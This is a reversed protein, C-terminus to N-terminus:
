SGPFRLFFVKVPFQCPFPIVHKITSKTGDESNAIDQSKHCQKQLLSPPYHLLAMFPTRCSGSCTPKEWEGGRFSRSSSLTSPLLDWLSEEVWGWQCKIGLRNETDAEELFPMKYWDTRFKRALLLSLFLSPSLCLCFSLCLLKLGQAQWTDMHKQLWTSQVQTQIWVKDKMLQIVKALSM